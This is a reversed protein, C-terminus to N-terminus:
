ITQLSLAYKVVDERCNKFDVLLDIMTSMDEDDIEDESHTTAIEKFIQAIEFDSEFLHNRYEDIELYQDIGEPTIRVPVDGGLLGLTALREAAGIVWMVKCEEISVQETMTM